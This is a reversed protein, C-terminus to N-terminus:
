MDDGGARDKTPRLAKLLDPTVSNMEEESFNFLDKPMPNGNPLAECTGSRLDDFFQHRLAKM